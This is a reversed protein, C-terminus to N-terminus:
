LERFFSWLGRAVFDPLDLGGSYECYRVAYGADCRAYEVCPAPAVATFLSLDCRNRNVWFDRNARGNMAPFDADGQAIWVAREGQCPTTPPGGSLPAVGRLKDGRVCAIATALPGGSGHGVAFIRQQDICYSGELKALLDDFLPLDRRFDWTSADTLPNVHVLVADTGAVLPLNLYGRFDDASVNAGRFAMILPYARTSDYDVPRDVIYTAVMGNVEISTDSTPPQKGCGTNTPPATGSDRDDAMM